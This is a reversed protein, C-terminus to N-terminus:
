TNELGELHACLHEVLAGGGSRSKQARNQVHIGMVATVLIKAEARPNIASTKQARNKANTLASHFHEELVTWYNAVVADLEPSAIRANEVGTNVIMCGYESSSSFKEDTLSKLFAIIEAIGGDRMPRLHMEFAAEAYYNLAELYLGQKGGFESRIAFQNIGTREELERVGLAQYGEQWFVECAKKVAEERVYSKQRPM